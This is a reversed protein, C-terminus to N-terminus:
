VGKRETASGSRMVGSTTREGRAALGHSKGVCPVLGAPGDPERAGEWSFEVATEVDREVVRYDIGSAMAIFGISGMGDRDFVLRAREVLDLAEKDWVETDTIEWTGLVADRNTM